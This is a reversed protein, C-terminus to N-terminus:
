KHRNISQNISQPLSPIITLSTGHPALSHLCAPLLLDLSCPADCVLFSCYFVTRVLDGRLVPADREAQAKGVKPADPISLTQASSETIQKTTDDFVRLVGTEGGPVLLGRRKMIELCSYLAQGVPIKRYWTCIDEKAKGQADGDKGADNAVEASAATAEARQQKQTKKKKKAKAEKKASSAQPPASSSSSSSSSAAEKTQNIGWEEDEDNNGDDLDSEEELFALHAELEELEEMVEDTGKKRKKRGGKQGGQSRTRKTQGRTTSGDVVVAAIAESTTLQRAKSV